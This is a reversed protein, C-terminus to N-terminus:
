HPARLRDPSLGVVQGLWFESSGPTSTIMALIPDSCRHAPPRVAIAFPPSICRLTCFVLPSKRGLGRSTAPFNVVRPELRTSDLAGLQFPPAFFIRVRLRNPFRSRVEVRLAHRDPPDEFTSGLFEELRHKFSVTTRALEAIARSTASHQLKLGGALTNIKPLRTFPSSFFPFLEALYIQVLEM